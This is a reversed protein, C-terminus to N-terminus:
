SWTPRSRVCHFCTTAIQHEEAEQKLRQADQEADKHHHCTLKGKRPKNWCCSMKNKLLGWCLGQDNRQVKLRKPLRRGPM